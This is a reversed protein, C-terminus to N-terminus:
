PTDAVWNLWKILDWTVENRNIENLNEHRGEPYFEETVATLGAARYAYPAASPDDPLTEVLCKAHEAWGHEIQIM